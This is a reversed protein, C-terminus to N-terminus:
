RPHVAPPAWVRHLDWGDSQRDMAETETVGSASGREEKRHGHSYSAPTDHAHTRECLRHGHGESGGDEKEAILGWRTPVRHDGQNGQSLERLLAPSIPGLFADTDQLRGLCKGYHTYCTRPM